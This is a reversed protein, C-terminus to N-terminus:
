HHKPYKTQTKWAPRSRRIEYVLWGVCVCALLFGVTAFLLLLGSLSEAAADERRQEQNQSAPATATAEVGTKEPPSEPAVARSLVLLLVGAIVSLVTGGIAKAKAHRDRKSKAKTM